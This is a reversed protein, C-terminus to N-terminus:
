ERREQNILEITVLLPSIAPIITPPVDLPKKSVSRQIHYLTICGLYNFERRWLVKVNRSAPNVIYKTSYYILFIIQAKHKDHM